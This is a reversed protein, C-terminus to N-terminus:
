NVMEELKRLAEVPDFSKWVGSGVVVYDSGKEFMQKINHEKVDGDIGVVVNPLLEHVLAIKEKVAPIFERGQAGPVIGMLLVHDIKDKLPVLKEVPTEPNLVVGKQFSYQKMLSFVSEPDQIAEYHVYVRKAQIVNCDKFYQEPKEVMLHIELNLSQHIDGLESLSTTVNPVFTNNMVDIHVWKTHEKMIGLQQQLEASDNTLIAPLVKQM